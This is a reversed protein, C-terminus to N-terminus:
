ERRRKTWIIKRAAGCDRRKLGIEEENRRYATDIMVGQKKDM